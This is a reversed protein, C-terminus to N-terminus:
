PKSFYLAVEDNDDNEEGHLGVKPRWAVCSILSNDLVFWLMFIILTLQRSSEKFSIM